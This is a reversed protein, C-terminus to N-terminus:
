IQTAEDWKKYSAQAKTVKVLYRRTEDAPLNKLLFQYVQEPTKKNIITAAKSFSKSKGTFTKAVNGVGTNYSAVACYFRSLPDKVKRLYRNTLLNFYAVGLEINKVPDYLYDPAVIKKKGYVHNYADIGATRPVLQMLGYAPVSSTAKPNFSSETQMIALVLSVPIDFKAAYTKIDESYKAILNKQYGSLFPIELVLKQGSTSAKGKLPQTSVKPKLKSVPEANPTKELTTTVATSPESQPTKEMAAITATSSESKPKQEVTAGNAVSPSTVTPGKENNIQKIENILAIVNQESVIGELLAHETKTQKSTKETKIGAKSLEKQTLALLQDKNNIDTLTDTTSETAAQTLRQYGDSLSANPKIITEIRLVGAEFDMIRRTQMDPSYDVWQHASPMVLDDAGWDVEIKNSLGKFAKDIAKEVANFRRELIADTGAFQKDLLADISDFDDVARLPQSTIGIALLAVIIHKIQM